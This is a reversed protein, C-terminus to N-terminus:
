ITLSIRRAKHQQGWREGRGMHLRDRQQLLPHIVGDRQGLLLEGAQQGIGEEAGIRSAVGSLCLVGVVWVDIEVPVCKWEVVCYKNHTYYILFFM